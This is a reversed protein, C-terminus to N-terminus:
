LFGNPITLKLCKLSFDLPQLLEPPREFNFPILQVLLDLAEAAACLSGGGGVWPSVGGRWWRCVRQQLRAGARGRVGGGGGGRRAGM